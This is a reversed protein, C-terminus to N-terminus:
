PQEGNATDCDPPCEHEANDGQDEHRDDDAEKTEDAANEAENAESAEDESGQEQQQITQSAKNHDRAQALNAGVLGFLALAGIILGVFKQKTM